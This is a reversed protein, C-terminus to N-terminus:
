YEEDEDEDQLKHSLIAKKITELSVEEHKFFQDGEMKRIIKKHIESQIDELLQQNNEDLEQDGQFEKITEIISDHMIELADSIDEDGFTRNALMAEQMETFWGLNDEGASSCAYSMAETVRAIIMREKELEIARESLFQSITYITDYVSDIEQEEIHPNEKELYFPVVSEIISKTRASHSLNLCRLYLVDEDKPKKIAEVVLNRTRDATNTFVLPVNETMILGTM